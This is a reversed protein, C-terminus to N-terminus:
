KFYRTISISIHFRKNM